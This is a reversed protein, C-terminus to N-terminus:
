MRQHSEHTDLLMHRLITRQRRIVRRLRKFQRAHSYDSGKRQLTTCEKHYARRFTIGVALAAQVVQRRAIELLRSDVPDAITKEQVTISVAVREFEESKIAQMRVSADISAKLWEEVGDRRQNHSLARDAHHRVAPAIHLVSPRQLILWIVNKSRRVVLEEDSLGFANKLYLLAAMLQIPLRPGSAPSAGAGALQVGPDFLDLGAIAKWARHSRAFHPALTAEIQVWPMRQTLVALPHLLDTSRPGPARSLFRRHDYAPLNVDRLNAANLPSFWPILSILDHPLSHSARPAPASLWGRDSCLTSVELAQAQDLGNVM